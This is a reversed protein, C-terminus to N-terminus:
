WRYELGAIPGQQTVRAKASGTDIVLRSGLQYGGDVALHNTLKAGVTARTSIFDGYGFFYLGKLFGDLYWRDSHPVFYVRYDPGIM